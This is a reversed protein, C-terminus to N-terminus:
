SNRKMKGCNKPQRNIKVCIAKKKDIELNNGTKAKSDNKKVFKYKM